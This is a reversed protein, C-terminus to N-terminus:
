VRVDISVLSRFVSVSQLRSDCHGMEGHHSNDSVAIAMTATVQSSIRRDVRDGLESKDMRRRQDKTEKRHM